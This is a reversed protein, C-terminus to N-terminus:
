SRSRGHLVRSLAVLRRVITVVIGALLLGLIWPLPAIERATGGTLDLGAMLLCAGTALAMRHPKAMPGRFDHQGTLTAGHLRIAATLLAGIACLWGLLRTPSDTPFSTTSIAM